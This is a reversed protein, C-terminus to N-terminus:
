ELEDMLEELAASGPCLSEYPLDHLPAVATHNLAHMDDSDEEIYLLGTVV